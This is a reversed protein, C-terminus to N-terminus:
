VVVKDTLSLYLIAWFMHSPSAFWVLVCLSVTTLDPWKWWHFSLDAKIGGPLCSAIGLTGLNMFTRMSWSKIVELFWSVLSLLITITCNVTWHGEKSVVHQSALTTCFPYNFNFLFLIFYLNWYVSFTMLTLVCWVFVTFGFNYLAINFIIQLVIYLFEM